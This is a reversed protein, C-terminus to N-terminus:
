VGSRINNSHGGIPQPARAPRLQSGGPPLFIATTWTYDNIPGFGNFDVEYFGRKGLLDRAEHDRDANDLIIFGGANLHSIAPDVCDERWAGDIVVIDFNRGPLDMAGIYHERDVALYFTQNLTAEATMKAHWVTNHDVSWVTAGLAAWFHSSNGCGFEFITYGRLDFERLYEIAPYTYWPIPLGASDVPLNSQITAALGQEFALIDFDTLLKESFKRFRAYPDPKCPPEPVPNSQRFLWDKVLQTLPM